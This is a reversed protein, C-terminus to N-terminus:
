DCNPFGPRTFELLYKCYCGIGDKSCIGLYIRLDVEPATIPAPDVCGFGPFKCIGKPNIVKQCLQYNCKLVSPCPRTGGHQGNLLEWMEDCRLLNPVWALTTLALVFLLLGLLCKASVTTISNIRTNKM